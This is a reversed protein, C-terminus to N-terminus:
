GASFRYVTKHRYEEWAPLFPSPFQPVNPSNPYYQTELCLGSYRGYRAGRKGLRDTLMGSCYLQVGPMDTEVEMRRGSVPEYVEACPQEGRLAYNHDYFGKGIQRLTRFDFDTGEVPLVEGTPILDSDVPTYFDAAIRLKHSLVDGGCALNFYSHNTINLVTDSDSVALYDIEVSNDDGLTYKVRVTLNGPFGDAGERDSLCFEVSDEGPHSEFARRCWGRGGHLCNQGENATVRYEKGGLEFAAGGIRNAYRGVCAGLCGDNTLYGDLDDYGLLVDGFNGSRDPAMLGTMAAGCSILSLVMGNKNRLKFRTVANGEVTGVRKKEIIM